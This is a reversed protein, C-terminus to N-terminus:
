SGIFSLLSLFSAVSSLIYKMQLLVKGIHCVQKRDSSM